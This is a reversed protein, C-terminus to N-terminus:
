QLKYIYALNAVNQDFQTMTDLNVCLSQGDGSFKLDKVYARGFQGPRYELLSSLDIDSHKIWTNTADKYHVEVRDPDQDGIAVMDGSCNVAVAVGYAQEDNQLESNNYMAKELQWSSGDFKYVHAFGVRNGYTGRDTFQNYSGYFDESGGPAGIILTDGDYSIDVAYGFNDQTSSSKIDAGVREWTGTTTNKRYVRTVHLPDNYEPAYGINYWLNKETVVITNGDGSMKMIYNPPRGDNNSPSLQVTFAQSESWYQDEVPKTQFDQLDCVSVDVQNASGTKTMWSCAFRTGCANATLMTGPAWDIHPITPNGSYFMMDNQPSVIIPTTQKWTDQSEDYTMSGIQHSDNEASSSLVTVVTGGDSSLKSMSGFRNRVLYGRPTPEAPQTYEVEGYKRTTELWLDQSHENSYGRSHLTIVGANNVSNINDNTGPHGFMIVTGDHNIDVLSGAPTYSSYSYSGSVDSSGNYPAIIGDYMGDPMNEALSGAVMSWSLGSLASISTSCTDCVNSVISAATPTPTPTATPTSTPTPTPTPTTTPTPTPTPTATATPTSPSSLQYVCTQGTSNNTYIAGIAIRDGTAALSVSYGFNSGTAEQDLQDTQVWNYDTATSGILTYIRTYGSDTSSTAIRDGTSNIDVAQGSNSNSDGVLDQGIQVWEYTSTDTGTLTFVRTYGADSNGENASVVVRDGSSNISVSHGLRDGSQDGFLDQGIQVWEYTSTDTGTLVFIRVYGTMRNNIDTGARAGIVVRDGTANLSVSHGSNDSNSGYTVGDIDQGIQVWEYTSTDTGTLAFIRTHGADTINNDNKPAGIAVRDGTANLSM